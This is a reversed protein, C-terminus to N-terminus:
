GGSDKQDKPSCSPARKMYKKKATPGTYPTSIRKQPWRLLFEVRSKRGLRKDENYTNEGAHRRGVHCISSKSYLYWVATVKELSPLQCCWASYTLEAVSSMEALKMEIHKAKEVGNYEAALGTARRHHRGM